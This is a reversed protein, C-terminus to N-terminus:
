DAKWLFVASIGWQLARLLQQEFTLYMYIVSISFVMFIFFPPPPSTNKILVGVKM